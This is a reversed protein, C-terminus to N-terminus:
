LEKIENSKRFYNCFYLGHFFKTTTNLFDWYIRRMTKKKFKYKFIINVNYIRKNIM